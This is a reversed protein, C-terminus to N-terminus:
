PYLVLLLLAPAATAPQPTMISLGVEVEAVAALIQQGMRELLIVLVMVVLAVAAAEEAEQQLTEAEVGEAVVQMPLLHGPSLHHQAPGVMEPHGPLLIVMEASRVLEAAAVLPTSDLRLTTGAMPEVTIERVPLALVEVIQAHLAGAQAAGLDEMAVMSPVVKPAVVAVPLLSQVLCAIVAMLERIAIVQDEPEVLASLLPIHKPQSPLPGLSCVALAAAVRQVGVGVVLLLIHFM